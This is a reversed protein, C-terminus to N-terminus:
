PRVSGHGFDNSDEVSQEEWMPEVEPIDGDNGQLNRDITETGSESRVETRSM